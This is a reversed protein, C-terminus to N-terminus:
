RGEKTSQGNRLTQKWADKEHPVEDKDERVPTSTRSLIEGVRAQSEINKASLSVLAGYQGRLEADSPTKVDASGDLRKVVVEHIQRETMDDLRFEAGMVAGAERELKTRARVAAQMTEDFRAVKAEAADARATVTKVAESEAATAGSAILADREAIQTKLVKVEGNLEDIRATAEELTKMKSGSENGASSRDIQCACERACDMREDTRLSCTAGCRAKDVIATHDVETDTQFGDARLGCAYGLSLEKTGREVADAASADTISMRVAAHEGDVWAADIRGVIRAKAGSGILGNPHGLTVPTGPLQDVLRQLEAADRYEDGHAYRLPDGPKHVRAAHGEVVFTKGSRTPRKLPGRDFRIEM